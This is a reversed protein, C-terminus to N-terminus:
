APTSNASSTGRSPPNPDANAANMAAIMDRYTEADKAWSRIEDLSVDRHNYNVCLWFAYKVHEPTSLAKGVEETGFTYVGLAVDSLANKLARDYEDPPLIDRARKVAEVARRELYREFLAQIEYTWPSVKFARAEPNSPSAPLSFEAPLGLNAATAGM